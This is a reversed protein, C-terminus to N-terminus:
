ALMPTKSDDDEQEAESVLQILNNWIDEGIEQLIRRKIQNIREREAESLVEGPKKQRVLAVEGRKRDHIIKGYIGDREYHYLEIGTEPFDIREFKEQLSREIAINRESLYLDTSGPYEEELLHSISVAYSPDEIKRLIQVYTDDEIGKSCPGELVEVKNRYKKLEQVNLKKSQSLLQKLKNSKKKPPRNAAREVISRYTLSLIGM